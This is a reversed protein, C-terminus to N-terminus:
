EVHQAWPAPDWSAKTDYLTLSLLSVVVTKSIWKDKALEPGKKYYSVERVGQVACTGM